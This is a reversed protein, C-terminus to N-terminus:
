ILKLKQMGGSCKVHVGIAKKREWETMGQWGCTLYGLYTGWVRPLETCGYAVRHVEAHDRYM